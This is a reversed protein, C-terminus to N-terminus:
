TLFYFLNGLLKAQKCPGEPGDPVIPGKPSIPKITLNDQIDNLYKYLSFSRWNIYM